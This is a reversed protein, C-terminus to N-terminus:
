VGVTGTAVCHRAQHGKELAKQERVETGGGDGGSSGANSNANKDWPKSRPFSLQSM